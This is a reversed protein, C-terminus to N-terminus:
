RRTEEVPWSQSPSPVPAGQGPLFPRYPAGPGAERGYLPPFCPGSPLSRGRSGLLLTVLCLGSGLTRHVIAEHTYGQWRGDEEARVGGGEERLGTQGEACM